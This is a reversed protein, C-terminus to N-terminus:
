DAKARQDYIVVGLIDSYASCIERLAEIVDMREQM